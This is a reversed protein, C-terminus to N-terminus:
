KETYCTHTYVWILWMSGHIEQQWALGHLLAIDCNIGESIYNSKKWTLCLQNSSLYCHISCSSREKSLHKCLTHNQKQESVTHLSASEHVKCHTQCHFSPAPLICFLILAVPSMSLFFSSDLAPIIWMMIPWPKRHVWKWTTLAKIFVYPLHWEDM